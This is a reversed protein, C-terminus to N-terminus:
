LLLKYDTTTASVTSFSWCSGCEGQNKVPTVAEKERWDVTDPTKVESPLRMFTTLSGKRIQTANVRLGLLRQRYEDVTWDAFENIGLTYSHIGM